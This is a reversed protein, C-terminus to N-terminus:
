YRAVLGISIKFLLATIHIRTPEPANGVVVGLRKSHLLQHKLKFVKVASGRYSM